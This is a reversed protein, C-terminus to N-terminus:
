PLRAERLVMAMDCPYVARRSALLQLAYVRALRAVKALAVEVPLREFGRPGREGCGMVRIRCSSYEVM